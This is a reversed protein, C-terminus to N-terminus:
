REGSELMRRNIEKMLYEADRGVGGILASGRRYQWPQGLFYLGSFPSIGRQHIVNGKQDLVGDIDIWSYDRYFGTAWVVNQVTIRSKDPFVAEKGSFGSVKPMLKIKGQAVISKLEPGLGFIPDKQQKLWKGFKTDINAHLMGLKDFWWFISKSLFNLPMFKRAEGLALYVDREKSLEIAIQVGTNGGGIVLAAGSRLEKPSRYVASHIQYVEESVDGAMNPTFPKQFPGTAIVIHKAYYDGQSTLVHFVGDTFEMGQVKTQLDIPISFRNVYAELYDAVDDKNPLGNPDGPFTLGPLSSYSRPTFLVLSDYRNRWVDGVRKEADVLVFSKSQQKLFYGMALGSQGAGIVLIDVNRGM